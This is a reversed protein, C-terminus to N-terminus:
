PVAKNANTKGPDILATAILMGGLAGYALGGGGSLLLLPAGMGYTMATFFVASTLGVLGLVVGGMWTNGTKQASWGGLAWWMVSYLAFGALDMRASFSDNFGAGAIVEPLVTATLSLGACAGLFVALSPRWRISWISSIIFKNLRKIMIPVPNSHFQGSPLADRIFFLRSGNGAAAM